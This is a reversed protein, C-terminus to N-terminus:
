RDNNGVCAYGYSLTISAWQLGWEQLSDIQEEYLPGVLPKLNDLEKVFALMRKARPLLKLFHPPRFPIRSETQPLYDCVRAIDEELQKELLTLHEQPTSESHLKIEPDVHYDEVSIHPVRVRQVVWNQMEFFKIAKLELVPARNRGKELESMMSSAFMRVRRLPKFYGQDHYVIASDEVMNEVNAVSAHPSERINALLDQQRKQMREIEVSQLRLARLLLSRKHKILKEREEIDGESLLYLQSAAWITQLRFPLQTTDGPLDVSLHM